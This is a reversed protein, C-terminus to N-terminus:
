RIPWPRLMGGFGGHPTSGTPQHGYFHVTVQPPDLM